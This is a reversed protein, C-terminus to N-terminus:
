AVRVEIWHLATPGTAGKSEPIHPLAVPQFIRTGRSPPYFPGPPSKSSSLLRVSFPFPIGRDLSERENVGTLRRGVEPSPQGGLHSRWQGVLEAPRGTAQREQLM